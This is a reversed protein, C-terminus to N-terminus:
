CSFGGRNLHADVGIVPAGPHSHVMGKQDTPLPGQLAVFAPVRVPLPAVEGRVAIARGDEQHGPLARPKLVPM